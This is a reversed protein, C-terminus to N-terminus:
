DSVPTTLVSDLSQSSTEEFLSDESSSYEYRAYTVSVDLFIEAFRIKSSRLLEVEDLRHFFTKSDVVKM